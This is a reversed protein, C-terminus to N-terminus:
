HAAGQISKVRADNMLAKIKPNNALTDLDFNQVARMVEPDALIAKMKPDNQLEMITSMISANNTMNTQLAQFASPSVGAPAAPTATTLASGNSIPKISEIQQSGLKITGMSKTRIEVVGNNMSQVEGRIRSGDKLLM